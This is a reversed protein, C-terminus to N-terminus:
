LKPACGMIKAFKEMNINGGSGIVITTKGKVDVKGSLVAALGAAGGPELM